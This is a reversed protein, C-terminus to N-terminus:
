NWDEVKCVIQQIKFFYFNLYHVKRRAERKKQKAEKKAVKYEEYM